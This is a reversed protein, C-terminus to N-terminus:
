LKQPRSIGGPEDCPDEAATQQAWVESWRRWLALLLEVGHGQLGRPTGQGFVRRMVVGLNFGA